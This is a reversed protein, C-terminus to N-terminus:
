QVLNVPRLVVTQRWLAAQQGTLAWGGWFRCHTVVVHVHGPVCMGVRGLRMLHHIDPLCSGGPSQPARAAGFVVGTALGAAMTDQYDRRARAISSLLQVSYFVGALGGM